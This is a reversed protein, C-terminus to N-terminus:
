AIRREIRADQDEPKQNRLATNLNDYSKKHKLSSKLNRNPESITKDFNTKRDSQHIESRSDDSSNEIERRKNKQEYQKNVRQTEQEQITKFDIDPYRKINLECRILSPCFGRSVM